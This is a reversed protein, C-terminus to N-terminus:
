VTSWKPIGESVLQHGVPGLCRPDVDAPVEVEDRVDDASVTSRGGLLRKVMTRRGRVVTEAHASELVCHAVHRRQRGFQRDRQHNEPFTNM